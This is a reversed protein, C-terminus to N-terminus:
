RSVQVCSVANLRAYCMVGYEFDYARIWNRNNVIDGVAPTTDSYAVPMSAYAALAAILLALLVYLKKM